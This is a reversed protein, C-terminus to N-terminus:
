AKAICEFAGTGHRIPHGMVINASPSMMPDTRKHLAADVMFVSTSEFSMQLFTSSIDTMGIRNMPKYEGDYTMFDAILSLHRPDVSIGYVAFVGKIQDAISRRAAEVGYSTNVSKADYEDDSEEGETIVAPGDNDEDDDSLDKASSKVMQKEDDDMEGYSTMEKKHGYRSGTVGDEENAVEDDYEDDSSKKKSKRTGDLDSPEVFDTSGGGAVDIKTFEGPAENRKMEAKMVRALKPIFVKTVVHCIDELRLGFAEQIREAPHLKLTVYYCREWVSGAGKELTERVTIGCHSALLDMLSLKSFYRTLRIAERDSVSSKLPVSMTPTKLERSATMIIERLRPIGLTVNAGAGALHFTNLTMQTSPEGISQAAISGVAEGPHALASGYKAAVIQHFGKISLGSTEMAKKVEPSDSAKSALNAVRESICAGSSGLRYSGNRRTLDSLVPDPCGPKIIECKFSEATTKNSGCYSFMVTRPVKEVIVGNHHYKIDFHNGDSHRKVITADFWGECIAGRTWDSGTRSKRARVFSGRNFLTISNTQLEQARLYDSNAVDLTSGPLSPYRKKLSKHNRALFQFNSLECDLHAAKTPDIGDEGYVFQVVGGDGDRVTHDYSVKLEELHKILCRQLYGSRSTKVATDVLGERGAMCHFYYEQPRVGTLFRDAIFGDARPNPDYPAFSPLTRGSSMRPVRRGELAQQGLSCSVQSQNVMSGKAGTTVMLGFTNEPFPVALGDPLCIKIIDSALPNVQSQMFADLAAANEKGDGGSLLEGIKSAVAAKEHPKLPERSKASQSAAPIEVKGGDSEAWAKAAHSGINYAEKVLKRRKEDADPTLILDEMRCSHGSYYQIYATFLRGFANLILGARDPGYAEYISHVLSFETAGFAAKDLVGQLLDGDRVITLHENWSAGFANAPTKAKREMSLGPFNFSPDEDRDNGKRLHNLLTSIVQKGTWLERPKRIAPPMLEISSDSRILELGPLSGLAAFLLQQYEEIGIFTNMCTLKVGADVHDQILGRLPGGDTPAIFQLDTGAIFHSEATALYSQPFHCNMEDGDYDANYTNCNAYHMRLTNQTPSFLVRVRHAMIGPKHLTPQRNMLVMDGDRLQRGVKVVGNDSLLRAAIAHRSSDKMKSLDVRQGSPFEVWVAGPYEAPGREVLKRMEAINLSTVPTPFTLTKAFHLPLGIENTGIYPDPSIVSRCAYNVRKGMMHKRFIGEKKELLQRIGNPANNVTGKPDRTSDMFCNVTTQLDVWIELMSAQGKDKDARIKKLRKEDNSTRKLEAEESTLDHITAFASRIRANLELVKSLYFNQSHEVTMNGMVIPPRFRSPPVPLARLFFLTYGKGGGSIAEAADSTSRPRNRRATTTIFDDQMAYNEEGTVSMHEPSHACGFFKSCLFPEKNWTLRCQAEIELAHMFSDQTSEKSTSVTAKRSIPGGTPDVDEDKVGDSTSKPRRKSKSKTPADDEKAESDIMHTDQGDDSEEEDDTSDEGVGQIDDESDPYTGIDQDDSHSAEGGHISACAPRIRIREAINSKANRRPLAVQFMKNFQDHRIKPSFANCNACKPCKICAAQFDKLIKRRVSREHMTLTVLPGGAGELSAMKEDIFKDIAVGTSNLLDRKMQKSNTGGTHAAEARGAVSALVEDLELAEQARGGDVLALKLAFVKCNRASLRFGHCALCKMKMLQLLRPFFLPHYVPVCLEIHGFHGPCLNRVNGCTVCLEDRDGGGATATPGLLPDYLGRPLPTNLADFALSSSIECVSRQRVEDDTYIGFQISTPEHRIISQNINAM